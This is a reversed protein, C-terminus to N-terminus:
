PLYNADLPAEPPPMSHFAHAPVSGPNERPPSTLVPLNRPCPSEVHPARGEGEQLRTGQLSPTPLLPGRKRGSLHAQDSLVNSLLVSFALRSGAQRSFHGTLVVPHGATM